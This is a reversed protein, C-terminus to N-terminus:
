SSVEIRYLRVIHMKRGSSWDHIIGDKVAAFHDRTQILLKGKSFHTNNERLIWGVSQITKGGLQRAEDTVDEMSYGLEHLLSLMSTTKLGNGKTPTHHGDTDCLKVADLYTQETLIALAIPGCPGGHGLTKAEQYLLSARQTM